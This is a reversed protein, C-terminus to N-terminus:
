EDGDTEDEGDEVELPTLQGLDVDVIKQAACDTCRVRVRRPGPVLGEGYVPNGQDDTAKQVMGRIDPGRVLDRDLRDIMEGNIKRPGTAAPCGSRHEIEELRFDSLDFHVTM